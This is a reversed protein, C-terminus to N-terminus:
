NCCGEELLLPVVDDPHGQLEVVVARGDAPVAAAARSLVDLIGAPHGVPEGNGM